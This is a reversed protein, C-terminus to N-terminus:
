ARAAVAVIPTPAVAAPSSKATANIKPANHAVAGVRWRFSRPRGERSGFRVRLNVVPVELHAAEPPERVALQLILSDKQEIKAEGIPPRIM